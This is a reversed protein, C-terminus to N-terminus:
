DNQAEKIWTNLKEEISKFGIINSPLKKIAKRHKSKRISPANLAKLSLRYQQHERDADIVKVKIVENLSVFQAVDKVFGDSIESIHILGMSGDDLSVFAGYPQIGTVKGEIISGIIYQM